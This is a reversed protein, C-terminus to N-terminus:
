YDEIEDDDSTEFLEIFKPTSTLDIHSKIIQTLDFISSNNTYNLINYYNDYCFQKMDNFLDIIDTEYYIDFIDNENLEQYDILNDDPISIMNSKINDTNNLIDNKTIQVIDSWTM